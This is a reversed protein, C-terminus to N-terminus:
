KRQHRAAKRRKNIKHKKMKLRRWTKISSAQLGADEHQDEDDFSPELPKGHSRAALTGILPMLAIGHPSFLPQMLKRNPLMESVVPVEQRMQRQTLLDWTQIKRKVSMDYGSCSMQEMSKCQLFNQADALSTWKQQGLSSLLLKSISPARRLGALVYLAM